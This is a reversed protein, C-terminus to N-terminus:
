STSRARVGLAHTPGLAEVVVDDVAFGHRALTATLEEAFARPPGPDRWGPEQAFLSLSGGPVLAERVAGLTEAPRRWFAAVHVAFVKDFREAGFDADELAVTLFEAKGSAVHERNRKTAADIMTRSRDIAVVRGTTLRECILSVAVGHGCGVELVRDAPDVALTEVVWAQRESAKAVVPM